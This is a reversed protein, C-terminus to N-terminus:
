QTLDREQKNTGKGSWLRYREEWEREAKVLRDYFDMHNCVMMAHKLAYMCNTLLWVNDRDDKARADYYQILYREFLDGIAEM